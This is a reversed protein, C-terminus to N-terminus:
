TYWRRPARRRARGAGHDRSRRAAGHVQLALADIRAEAAGIGRTTRPDGRAHVLVALCRTRRDVGRRRSQVGQRNGRGRTVPRARAGADAVRDRRGRPYPERDREVARDVREALADVGPVHACVTDAAGPQLGTLILVPLGVSCREVGRGEAGMTEGHRCDALVPLARRRADGVPDDRHGRDRMHRCVRAPDHGHLHRHMRGTRDIHHVRHTQPAEGQGGVDHVRRVPAKHESARVEDGTVGLGELDAHAQALRSPQQQAVM